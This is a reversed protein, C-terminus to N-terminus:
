LDQPPRDAGDQRSKLDGDMAVCTAEASARWSHGAIADRM